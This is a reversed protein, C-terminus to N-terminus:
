EALNKNKGLGVANKLVSCFMFLSVFMTIHAIAAGGQLLGSILTGGLLQTFGKYLIFALLLSFGILYVIFFPRFQKTKTIEFSKELLMMILTFFAGLVMIHVHASVVWPRGSLVPNWGVAKTTILIAVEVVLTLTIFSFFTKFLDSMSFTKTAVSSNTNKKM